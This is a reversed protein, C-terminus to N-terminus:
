GRNLGPRRLRGVAKIGSHRVAGRIRAVLDDARYRPDQELRHTVTDFANNIRAMIAESEARKLGMREGYAILEEPVPFVKSKNLKLAMRGDLMPYIDTCVVDYIPALRRPGTPDVYMIGINKMHADGDRLFCSLAVREFLKRSQALFDVGAYVQVAKGIM